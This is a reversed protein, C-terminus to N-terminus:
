CHARRLRAASAHLASGHLASVRCGPNSVPVPVFYRSEIPKTLTAPKASQVPKTGFIKERLQLEANVFDTGLHTILSSM